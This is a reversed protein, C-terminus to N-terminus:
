EGSDPQAPLLEQLLPVLRTHMTRKAVYACAGASISATEYDAAEHASLIVVLTAPASAKLQRTAEIGDIGPLRVDMLVLRPRHQGALVLAEEGSQAELVVWQPFIIGFLDCLAHRVLSHDEVILIACESHPSRHAKKPTSDTRDAEM